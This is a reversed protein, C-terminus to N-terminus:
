IWISFDQQSGRLKTDAEYVAVPAGLVTTQLAAVGRLADEVQVALASVQARTDGWVSVQIRSNKKSPVAASMFQVARGGVQQFVLYPKVVADPAVDPYARNSVLSSLASFISSEASM